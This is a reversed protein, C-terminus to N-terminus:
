GEGDGGGGVPRIAAPEAWCRRTEGEWGVGGDGAGAGETLQGAPLWLSNSRSSERLSKPRRGGLIEPATLDTSSAVPTPGLSTPMSRVYRYDGSDSEAGMHGGGGGASTALSESFQLLKLVLREEVEVRLPAMAIMISHFCEVGGVSERWKSVVGWLAAENGGPAVASMLVPYKAHRLQNDVQVGAM